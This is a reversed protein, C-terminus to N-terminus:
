AQNGGCAESDFLAEAALTAKNRVGPPAGTPNGLQGKKFPQGRVRAPQKQLSDVAMGM